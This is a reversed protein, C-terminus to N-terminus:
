CGCQELTYSNLRLQEKVIEGINLVCTPPM